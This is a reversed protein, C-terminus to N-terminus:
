WTFTGVSVRQKYTLQGDTAELDYTGGKVWITAPATFTEGPMASLEARLTTGEPEISIVISSMQSERLKRTVDRSARAVTKSIDQPLEVDSCGELYLSARSLDNKKAHIAGLTCRAAADEKPRLTEIARTPERVCGICGADANGRHGPRGCLADEEELHCANAVM